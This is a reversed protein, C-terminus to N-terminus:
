FKITAERVEVEDEGSLLLDDVYQIIQIRPPTSFAQLIKELAQGFLNPSETFGQPLKTWRLQQKRGTKPDEWEFAFIDRSEKALPCAWFADKLDVVSFWQHQPPVKSLLTYPNPVVPYRSRTRKNVERLDQVLRYSGDPEKVPLIPTNHPSMCPELTGDKILGEIVPKLGERGELSIPYQRVRIPCDEREITVSIPDSNLGGRNGEGAWVEKNMKEEDEQGLKLVKATMKGDEPIVGIGSKVQLDRGLLNSGAKPVLLVDGMWIKTEGEIVVDKIVPVTFTEGKAGTVKATDKSVSYGKPVNLLCTREAGTDVVFELEEGQPGVKLTIVPELHYKDWQSPNLPKEVHYPMGYLMEFPSLGIDTRPQTRINLLALPLCKTWSLKTEIMLKTLQKKIEGNMREVRGSSQPHWPTHHEWKIGLSEMTENLIKSVFHPGRDSDITEPAGYRPIINELLVKVVAQTTARTTPFAEVYHTLHDIIVLLYKVRGVKPLETFDVQINAFPRQALPRGGLPQKRFSAKNVQLCTTCGAVIQKALNHIGICMYKIGFQDVIAQTGWHTKEHIRHLIELAIAKPLVERGDSLKWKGDQDKCIGMQSLKQEETKTFRYEAKEEDLSETGPGGKEKQRIIMLTAKKAEQDAANNGRSRFDIGRQHGRLHVVAIKKPKRLAILVRKILEQHILDKGQSNMLGREEWIKGFTHVVGFAYKSDIYITGEKDKLRELARLVAYLECAQASWTKNLPGSEIVELEPGGIIAYGSVRKGEIVWSSGDVFLREGTELEEEELDPRIKTQEEITTMCNHALEKEDPEGYLFQAPNQLGTVELTLKPSDLLIGKVREPDIRKEGKSLYHGLYKVEEEVFQLKAKSVKLGKLGLFNLLKISEKQVDDEREGALLLDDVYQVLTVGPRTKYDQLIQELAQGFLNPSETFGQPLVTWRLQQRRHTEPDEWEFAFYDRSNEALPCAWFADKLDIVSYWCNNPGLNSLLTYPNAVVPFRAVTRKNIERLDHVLRYTGDPKKVPLIPTNFPSMCSELLGKSVLRDIEPKLGMRGELSIPYQRIRVPIDPNKLTVTFPPIDM